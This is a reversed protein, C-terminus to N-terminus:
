DLHQRGFVKSRACYECDTKECTSNWFSLEHIEQAVKKIEKNIDELDSDVIEFKERRLKGTGKDPEIFDIEGSVMEYKREPLNELLIKYFNLQRKINGNSNKTNGLIDNRSKQSGTKYDVVNVTKETIFEVKDLKGRLLISLNDHIQFFVGTVPLENKIDKSWTGDYVDFYRSLADKGRLLFNEFEEAPMPLRSLAREFPEILDAKGSSESNKYKDFFSKLGAHVATGYYLYAPSPKPVRILNEFFYKWPCELYNNLATVSLGQEIFIKQLYNKNDLSIGITPEKGYIEYRNELIKKEMNETPIKQLLNKDIEEIFQSPLRERGEENERSMTIVVNSRARTMAVYFLRREDDNEELRGATLAPVPLLFSYGTRRNGWHGNWVGAIYVTEFELGKSKHATMIHVGSKFAPRWKTDIRVGYLELTNLYEIYDSLKYDSHAEILRKLSSMVGDWKELARVSDKGSMIHNLFGSERSVLDVTYLLNRNRAVKAWKGLKESIQVVTEVDDIDLSKLLKQDKILKRISTRITRAGTNIKFVDSPDLGLFGTFLAQGLYEDRGYGDLARLLMIFGKVDDDGLVNEDSFVLFPIGTKELVRIFPVVDKNDRFLVAIENPDEDICIREQIDNAIYILESEPKEFEYFVMPKPEINLGTTLPARLREEELSGRSILSHSADLIGQQSRYNKNLNILVANEYRKQFYLFNELSAGQFRYIAQKEDGVIFLNPSDHFDSLLELLINQSNNADQHEDALIYQYEEQIILLLDKHKKFSEVVEIIMDEYDFLRAEGMGKEYKAYLDALEFSKELEKLKKAYEGKMRGKYAGKDHYLDPLARIKNIELEVSKKFINSKINERKLSRIASLAPRTYFGTDGYLAIRKYKGKVLFEEIIKIQDVETAPRANLLKEFYDPYTDIIRKCFSHFTFINVRYAPAGMIDVLKRRMSHVGSETFTLALISDPSTDTKAIINAIRLTLISTKGTGPGAIVMVPGEITDVAQKQEKNLKSYLSKFSAETM